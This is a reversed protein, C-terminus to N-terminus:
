SYASLPFSLSFSLFLFPIPFLCLHVRSNLWRESEMWQASCSLTCTDYINCVHNSEFCLLFLFFVLSYTLSFERDIYTVYLYEDLAEWRIFCKTTRRTSRSTKSVVNRRNLMTIILRRAREHLLSRMENDRRAYGAVLERRTRQRMESSFITICDREKEREEEM